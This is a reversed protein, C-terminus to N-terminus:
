VKAVDAKMVNEAATVDAEIKTIPNGSLAATLSGTKKWQWLVYLVAVGILGLTIPLLLKVVEGIVLATVIVASGGGIGAVAYTTNHTLVAAAVAIGMAIVTAIVLATLKKHLENGQKELTSIKTEDAAIGQRLQDMQVAMAALQAGSAELTHSDTIISDWRPNLTLQAAPPTAAKGSIATDEIHKSVTSVTKSQSNLSTALAKAQQSANHNAVACGLMIIGTIIAAQITVLTSTRV